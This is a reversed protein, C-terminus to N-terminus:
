TARRRRLTTRVPSGGGGMEPAADFELTPQARASSVLRAVKKMLTPLALLAFADPAYWTGEALAAGDVARGALVSLELHFHTFSHRVCGPLAKWCALLPALRSAQELSWAEARWPTSPFEAMGGLLGESPRRRVLVSGDAREAWFVVGHRVPKERRQARVPYDEPSAGVSAACCSQWPCQRCLPRRPTCVTAGLDMMAQAFDGTRQEPTLERALVTIKARAAALPDGVAHLRAVVRLVNGDIPTAHRDFAIAAIAAATYAGIGPLLRLEAEHEPLRGGHRAAVIRACTHLNRARAYYGLGQWVHLVDEIDAAALDALRPWRELFAAFYPAAAAATTQQLMVESIWVRYPDTAVGPPSRWPLERRNSDYWV